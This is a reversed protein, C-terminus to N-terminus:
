EFNNQIILGTDNYFLPIKEFPIYNWDNFNFPIGEHDMKEQLSKVEYNNLHINISYKNLQSRLKLLENKRLLGSTNKKINMYKKWIYKADDNIELFFRFSNLKEILNFNDNLEKFNLSFMKTLLNKGEDKSFYEDIKSYYKKIIDYLNCESITKNELNNTRIIDNTIRLLDPDYVYGAFSRRNNKEDSLHVIKLISQSSSYKKNRNCRGAVQIISDLPGFDRYVFNFDLDVGAEIVQTSVLIINETSNKIKKIINLRKEPLIESSLFFLQSKMPLDHLKTHIFNFIRKASKRTNLVILIKVQSNHKKTTELINKLDPILIENLFINLDTKKDINFSYAIRNIKRFLDEKQLFLDVCKKDSIIKPLTATVLIFKMNFINNLFLIAKQILPWYKLPITQVEDLIVVSNIFKIFRRIQRNTNLFLTNFFQHFTTVIIESNWGEILLQAYLASHTDDESNSIKRSQAYVMDSLHNHTLLLPNPTSQNLKFIKQIVNYNQDIITLFPLCYIIRYNNKKRLSFATSLSALTKGMGTPVNIILIKNIDVSKGTILKNVNNKVTEYIETRLFDLKNSNLIKENDTIYSIFGKEARYKELYSLFDLDLPREPYESNFAADMKDAELLLSYFLKILFYCFLRLKEPFINISASFGDMIRKHIRPNLSFFSSKNRISELDRYIEEIELNLGLGKEILHNYIQPLENSSKLDNVINSFATLNPIWNVKRMDEFINPLKTHHSKVVYYSIVPIFKFFFSLENNSTFKNLHKCNDIYFRTIYYTFLASVFSHKTEESSERKKSTLKDQFYSTAKAFDHTAGILYVIDALILKINNLDISDKPFNFIQSYNIKLDLFLGKINESVNKLHEILLKNEHSKLRFNNFNKITM